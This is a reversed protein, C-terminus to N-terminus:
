PENSIKRRGSHGVSWHTISVFRWQVYKLQKELHGPKDASLELVCFDHSRKVKMVEQIVYYIQNMPGPNKHCKGRTQLVTAVMDKATTKGASGTIGIFTVNRVRARHLRALRPLAWLVAPHIVQWYVGSAIRGPAPWTTLAPFKHCYM